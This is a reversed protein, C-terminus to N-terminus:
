LSNLHYFRIVEHSSGPDVITKRITNKPWTTLQNLRHHDEIVLETISGKKLVSQIVVKKENGM